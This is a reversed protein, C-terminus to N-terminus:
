PHKPQLQTNKYFKKEFDLYDEKESYTLLISQSFM